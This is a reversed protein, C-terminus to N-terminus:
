ARTFPLPSASPPHTTSAFITGGFTEVTKNVADQLVDEERIDVICAPGKGGVGRDRGRGYVRALSSLTLNLQRVVVAANSMKPRVFHLQRLAGAQARLLLTKGQLENEM